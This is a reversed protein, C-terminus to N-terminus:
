KFYKLIRNKNYYLVYFLLLLNFWYIFFNIYKKTEKYKKNLDYKKAIKEYNHKGIFLELKFDFMNHYFLYFMRIIIFLIILLPTIINSRVASVYISYIRAFVSCLFVYESINYEQCKQIFKFLNYNYNKILNIVFILESKNSKNSKSNKNYYNFYYNILCEEKYIILYIFESINLLSFLLDYLYNKKIIFVYFTIFLGFLSHFLAFIINIM